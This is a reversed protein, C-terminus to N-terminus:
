PAVGWPLLKYQVGLTVSGFKRSTDDTVVMAVDGRLQVALKSTAGFGLGLGFNWTMEDLSEGSRELSTTGLGAYPFVKFGPSLTNGLLVNLGFATADWGDRSYTLGSGEPIEETRSGYSSTAFFPELTVVPIIKVPARLGFQSGSEGTIDDTGSVDQLVPVSYGGYGMVGLEIPAAAVTGSLGPLAGCVLLLLFRRM